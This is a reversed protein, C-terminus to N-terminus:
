FHPANEYWIPGIKKKPHVAYSSLVTIHDITEGTQDMKKTKKKNNLHPTYTRDLLNTCQLDLNNQCQLYPQSGLQKKKEEKQLNTFTWITKSEYPQAMMSPVAAM